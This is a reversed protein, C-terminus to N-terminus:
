FSFQDLNEKIYVHAISCMSFLVTELYVTSLLYHLSVCIRSLHLNIYKVAILNCGFRGERIGFIDPFYYHSTKEYTM